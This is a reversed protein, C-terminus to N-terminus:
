RSEAANGNISESATAKDELAQAITIGATRRDFDLAERFLRGKEGLPAYLSAQKIRMASRLEAMSAAEYGLTWFVQMAQALDEERDFDHPGGRPRDTFSKGKNCAFTLIWWRERIMSCPQIRSPQQTYPNARLDAQCAPVARMWAQV